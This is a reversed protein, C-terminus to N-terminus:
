VGTFTNILQLKKKQSYDKIQVERLRAIELDEHEELYVLEKVGFRATYKGGLGSLHQAYRVEPNWTLGTYFRGNKLELIYVYWKWKPM